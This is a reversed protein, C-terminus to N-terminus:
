GSSTESVRSKGMFGFNKENAKWVEVIKGANIIIERLEEDTKDAPNILTLHKFIESPLKSMLMTRYAVGFVKAKANLTDFETIMDQVNGGYRLETLAKYATEQQHKNHFRANIAARYTSWSRPHKGAHAESEWQMHWALAHDELRGRVYQIKLGPGTFLHPQDAVFAEMSMWWVDFDESAKGKFKAPDSLKLRTERREKPQQTETRHRRRDSGNRSRHFGSHHSGPPPPDGGAGGAPPPPNSPGPQVEEAPPAEELGVDTESGGRLGVVQAVDSDTIPSISRAREEAQQQWQQIQVRRDPHVPTSESVKAREFASTLGTHEKQLKVVRAELIQHDMWSPVEEAFRKELVAMKEQQVKMSANWAVMKVQLTRIQKECETIRNRLNEFEETAEKVVYDNQCQLAALGTRTENLVANLVQIQEEHGVIAQQELAKDTAVQRSFLQCRLRIDDFEAEIAEKESNCANVLRQFEQDLHNVQAQISDVMETDEDRKSDLYQRRSAEYQEQLKKVWEPLPRSPQKSKAVGSSAPALQNAGSLLRRRNSAM